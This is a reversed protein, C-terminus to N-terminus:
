ASRKLIEELRKRDHWHLEFTGPEGGREVFRPWFGQAKSSRYLRVVTATKLAPPSESVGCFDRREQDHSRRLRLPRRRAPETSCRARKM